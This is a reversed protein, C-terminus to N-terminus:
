GKMADEINQRGRKGSEQILGRMVALTEDNELVFPVEDPMDSQESGKGLWRCYERSMEIVQEAEWSSLNSCAMRNYADLEQWTIPAVGMGATM